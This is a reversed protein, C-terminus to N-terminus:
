HSLLKCVLGVMKDKDSPNSEAILLTLATLASPSMRTVDLIQAQRLLWIFAYAGSRKNGDVFPHNKIIFYLLHAAKEEISPYLEQDGFSQFVNGVIGTLNGESRETGFLETAEGKAILAQRLEKLASQLQDATIEIQKKTGGMPALMDRDYADLSLWTDAFLTILEFINEHDIVSHPPLLKKVQAVAELFQTYNKELRQPNLSYGKVIQDKLVQTAWKRFAIAKTSNTRYGVALIVDLNYFQVRYTKGDIATRAMKACVSNADLEKDKLINRIHKTIVSREVEFIDAIDDQAAWVTESSQDKQLEIAGTSSQYIIAESTSSFKNIM